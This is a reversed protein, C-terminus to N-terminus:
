SNKLALQGCAAAIDPGKSYRIMARLGKQLLRNRFDITRKVEPTKLRSEKFSNFPILNVKVPFGIFLEALKDAEALSDNQGAILTHQIMVPHTLAAEKLYKIVDELPWKQNIPMMKSRKSSDLFHLSFSLSIRPFRESLRMLGPLHGATSVCIKRPGFALCQRSTLIELAPLLADLNDLPEGMGMFVLNTVKEVNMGIVSDVRSRNQKIWLNALLVQGVIEHTQLNRKLGMRSTNCFVCGQACGVQSSLCLTLRNAEPMLVMEVKSDDALKLLFKVSHDVTSQPTAVIEPLQYNFEQLIPVLKKPCQDFLWSPQQNRYVQRLLGKAHPLPFNNKQLFKELAPPVMSFFNTQHAHSETNM